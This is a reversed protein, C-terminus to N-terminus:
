DGSYSLMYIPNAGKSENIFTVIHVHHQGNPFYAAITYLVMSGMIAIFRKVCKSIIKRVINDSTIKSKCLKANILRTGDM